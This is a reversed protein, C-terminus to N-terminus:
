SSTWRVGQRRWGSHHICRDRSDPFSKERGPYLLTFIHDVGFSLGVCPIPRKGYMGVLTDYRGGGSISSVQSPQSARAHGPRDTSTPIVEYILGSYYDLGRALSLEFSVKAAVDMVELYSILLDMDDLGAKVNVDAYLELDAKFVDIIERMSGSRRVYGGIQNAVEDSLGKEEVMERKVEDWTAKDLKDIASSISRIKLFM